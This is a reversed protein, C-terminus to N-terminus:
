KIFLSAIGIGMEIIPFVRDYALDIGKDELWKIFSGAKKGKIEGTKIKDRYFEKLTQNGKDTITVELESIVMSPIFDMEEDLDEKTLNTDVYGLTKLELLEQLLCLTDNDNNEWLMGYIDAISECDVSKGNLTGTKVIEELGKLFSLAEIEQERTKMGAM